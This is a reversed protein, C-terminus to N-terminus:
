RPEGENFLINGKAMVELIIKMLYLKSWKIQLTVML